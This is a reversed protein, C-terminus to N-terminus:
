LIEFNSIYYEDGDWMFYLRMTADAYDVPVGRFSCDADYTVDVSFCNKAWYIVDGAYTKSTDINSYRTSWRLSERTKRTEDYAQTGERLMGLVRYVSGGAGNMYYELDTKVFQVSQETYASNDGDVRLLYGNDGCPLLSYGEPPTVSLDPELLLGDVTYSYWTVPKELQGDLLKYTMLSETKRRYEKSLQQGNCSVKCKGPVTVSASYTGEFLLKVDSVAWELESGSLAIRALSEGGNKLVYVPEEQTFGEAKYAKVADPSFREAMYAYVQDRIDLDNPSQDYWLDTWYDITVGSQWDEFALQPSQFVAKEHAKRASDAAKERDIEAQDTKLFDWLRFQLYCSVIVLVLTYLLMFIRFWKSKKKKEPKARRPAPSDKPEQAPKKPAAVVPKEKETKQAPKKTKEARKEPAATKEHRARPEATKKAPKGAPKAKEAKQAPKKPKEARKEPAAAKEHRAKPEAPRDAHKGAPRSPQEASAGPEKRVGEAAAPERRQRVEPGAQPVPSEKKERRGAAASRQPASPRNKTRPGPASSHKGQYTGMTM